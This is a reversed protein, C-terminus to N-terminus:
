LNTVMNKKKLLIVMFTDEKEEALYRVFDIDYFINWLQKRDVM